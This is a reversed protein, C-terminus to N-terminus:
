TSFTPAYSAPFTGIVGSLRTLPRTGCGRRGIWLSVAGGLCTDLLPLKYRIKKRRCPECALATRRCKRPPNADMCHQLLHSRTLSATPEVSSATLYTNFAM